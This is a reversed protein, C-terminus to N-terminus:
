VGGTHVSRRVGMKRALFVTVFLVTSVLIITGGSALDFYYSLVLGLIISLESFLVAYGMTQKFGKEMQVAAAVPIIMLGTVLMVGVARVMVSITIAMLLVFLFQMFRAPIGSIRAFAEDFTVMLMEKYFIFITVLVVVGTLLTLNFDTRSVALLNGFLYSFLNVNFGDMWSFLVVSMGISVSLLLPIALESFHRYVRRLGEVLLAGIVAFIMGFVPISVPALYSVSVGVLSGVAIGFLSMHSVVESVVSLRRAVVFVGVLPSILGVILGTLLARQIFSFELISELM